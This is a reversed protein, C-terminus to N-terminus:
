RSSLNSPSPKGPLSLPSSSHWAPPLAGPQHLPVPFLLGPCLSPGLNRSGNKTPTVGVINPMHDGSRRQPRTVGHWPSSSVTPVRALISLSSSPLPSGLTPLTHPDLRLTFQRMSLSVHKHKPPYVLVPKSEWSHLTWPSLPQHAPELSYNVRKQSPFQVPHALLTQTERLSPPPCPQPPRPTLAPQALMEAGGNRPYRFEVLCKPGWPSLPGSHGHSPLAFAERFSGKNDWGGHPPAKWRARRVIWM